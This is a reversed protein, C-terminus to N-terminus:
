IEHKFYDLIQTINESGDTAIRFKWLTKGHKDTFFYKEPWAGSKFNFDNNMNDLFIEDLFPKLEPVKKFVNRCNQWREEITKPQNVGFGLPWVDDAHAEALYVM